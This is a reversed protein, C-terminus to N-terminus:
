NRSRFIFGLIKNNIELKKNLQKVSLKRKKQLRKCFGYEWENIWDHSLALNLTDVGFSRTIDDQVRKVSQFITDSPLGMFKNVCHNGVTVTIGNYRNQLVCMEIIPFHGCLCTGPEDSIYIYQLVWEQKAEHWNRSRSLEIIKQSLTYESM